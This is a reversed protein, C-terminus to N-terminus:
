DRMAGVGAGIEYFKTWERLNKLSSWHMARCTETRRAFGYGKPSVNLWQEKPPQARREIEVVDRSLVPTRPPPPHPPDM